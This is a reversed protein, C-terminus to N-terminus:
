LRKSKRTKCFLWAEENIMNIVSCYARSMLSGLLIYAVHSPFHYISGQQLPLDLIKRLLNHLVSGGRDALKQNQGYIDM